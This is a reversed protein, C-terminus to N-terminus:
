RLKAWFHVYFVGISLSCCTNGEHVLTRTSMLIVQWCRGLIHLKIRSIFGETHLITLTIIVRFIVTIHVKIDSGNTGSM